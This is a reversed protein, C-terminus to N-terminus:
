ALHAQWIPHAFAAQARVSGERVTPLIPVSGMYGFINENRFKENIMTLAFIFTLAAFVKVVRVIDEEDRILIDCFSIAAL